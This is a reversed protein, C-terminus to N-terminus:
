FSSDLANTEQPLTNLFIPEININKKIGNHITENWIKIRQNFIAYSWSDSDTELEDELNTLSNQVPTFNKLIAHKSVSQKDTNYLTRLFKGIELRMLQEKSFYCLNPKPAGPELLAHLLHFNARVDINRKETVSLSIQDHMDKILSMANPSQQLLANISILWAASLRESLPSDPNFFVDEAKESYYAINHITAQNSLDVFSVSNEDSLPGM